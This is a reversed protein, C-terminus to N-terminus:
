SLQILQPRYQLSHRCSHVFLRILFQNFALMCSHILLHPMYQLSHRCAPPRPLCAMGGGFWVVLGLWGKVQAVRSLYPILYNGMSMNAAAALTCPIQGPSGQQSLTDPVTGYEHQTSCSTHTTNQSLSRQQSMTGFVTGYEHHTSGSTHM